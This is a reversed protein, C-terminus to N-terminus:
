QQVFVRENIIKYIKKSLAPINKRETIKSFITCTKTAITKEYTKWFDFILLQYKQPKLVTTSKWTYRYNNLDNILLFLIKLSYLLNLLKIKSCTTTLSIIKLM